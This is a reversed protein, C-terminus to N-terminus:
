RSLVVRQPREPTVKDMDYYSLRFPWAPALEAGAACYAETLSHFCFGRGHRIRIRTSPNTPVLNDSFEGPLKYTIDM